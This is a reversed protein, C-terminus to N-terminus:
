KRRHIYITIQRTKSNKIYFPRESAYIFYIDETETVESPVCKIFSQNKRIKVIEKNVEDTSVIVKAAHFDYSFTVDYDPYLERLKDIISLLIGTVM